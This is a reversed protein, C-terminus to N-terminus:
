LAVGLRKALVGPYQDLDLDLQAGQYALAQIAADWVLLGHDMLHFGPLILSVRFNNINMLLEESGVCSYLSTQCDVLVKM